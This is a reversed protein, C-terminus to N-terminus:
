DSRKLNIGIVFGKDDYKYYKRETKERVFEKGPVTNGYKLDGWRRFSETLRNKNDYTFQKFEDPKGNYLNSYGTIKIINGNKDCELASHERYAGNYYFERIEQLCGSESYTFVTKGFQGDKSIDETWMEIVRGNKDFLTITNEKDLTDKGLIAGYSLQRCEKVAGKLDNIYKEALVKQASAAIFFCQCILFLVFKM